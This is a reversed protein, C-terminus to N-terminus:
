SDDAMRPLQISFLKNTNAVPQKATASGMGWASAPRALFLLCRAVSSATISVLVQTSGLWDCCCQRGRWGAFHARWAPGCQWIPQKKQYGGNDRRGGLTKRAASSIVAGRLATINATMLGVQAGIKRDKPHNRVRVLTQNTALEQKLATRKPSAGEM